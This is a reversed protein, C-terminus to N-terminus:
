NLEGWEFRIFSMIQLVLALHTRNNYTKKGENKKGRQDTGYKKKEELRCDDPMFFHM